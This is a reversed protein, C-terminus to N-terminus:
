QRSTAAPAPARLTIAVQQAFEALQATMREQSMGEDALARCYATSLAELVDAAAANPVASRYRAVLGSMKDLDRLSQKLSEAGLDLAPRMLAPALNPCLLAQSEDRPSRAYRRWQAISWPAANPMANNGWATRVYNVVDAIQDDTLSGAFSAMAGWTGQAPFGQLVAMIANYPEAATIADNGTLAPVTGNSGKGDIGHCSSCNDEYVRRGADVRAYKVPVAKEPTVGTPQDKLYIAIAQLDSDSLHSLSDRIVMQMPGIPKTNGPMKGSKLYQSIQNVSWTAVQSLSDSSIDPAFWGEVEAGTLRHQPELAQALNRPTHCEGCHGLAQVLYAGRNWRANRDPRPAFPGPKFYLSQWVGLGSRVTLPFPLTNAPVSNRVAPISRVFAWLADMDSASIKTYSAYPMAPYLYAGDKRVGSRLAREFDARSWSGIGSQADSTINAGYLTGFASKLATGGAYPKGGPATHCSNCDAALAIYRGRDALSAGGRLTQSASIPTQSGSIASQPAEGASVAPPGMTACSLAVIMMISYLTGAGPRIADM